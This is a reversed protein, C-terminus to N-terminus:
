LKIYAAQLALAQIEHLKGVHLRIRGIYFACIKGQESFIDQKYNLQNQATDALFVNRERQKRTTCGTSLICILFVFLVNREKTGHILYFHIYLM